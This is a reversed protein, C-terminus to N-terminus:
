IFVQGINCSPAYGLSSSRLREILPCDPVRCRTAWSRAAIPAQAKKATASLNAHRDLFRRNTQRGPEEDNSCPAQRRGHSALAGFGCRRQRRQAVHEHFSEEQDLSKEHANWTVLTGSNEVRSGIPPTPCKGIRVDAPSCRMTRTPVGKRTWRARHTM